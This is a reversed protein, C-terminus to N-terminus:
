YEGNRSTEWTEYALQNTLWERDEVSLTKVVELAHWRVSPALKRSTVTLSLARWLDQITAGSEVAERTAKVFVKASEIYEREALLKDLDSAVITETM